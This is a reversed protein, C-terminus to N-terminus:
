LCKSFTTYYQRESSRPCTTIQAPKILTKANQLCAARGSDVELRQQGGGGRVGGGSPYFSFYSAFAYMSFRQRSPVGKAPGTCACCWARGTMRRGEPDSPTDCHQYTM